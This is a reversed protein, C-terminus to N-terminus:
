PNSDFIEWYADGTRVHATKLIVYRVDVINARVYKDEPNGLKLLTDKTQTCLSDKLKRIQTLIYM